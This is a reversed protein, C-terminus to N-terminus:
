KREAAVSVKTIGARNCLDMVKVSTGLSSKKDGIILVALEPSNVAERKLITFLSQFSVERGHIHLKNSATIAVLTPERATVTASCASPRSVEVGTQESFQATIVFFILLIFVMDLLPGMNIEARNERRPILGYEEFMVSEM